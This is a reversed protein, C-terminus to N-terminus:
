PIGGPPKEFGKSKDEMCVKSLTSGKVTIVFKYYMCCERSIKKGLM